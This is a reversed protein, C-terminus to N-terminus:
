LKSREEKTMLNRLKSDDGKTHKFVEIWKGPCLKRLEREFNLLAPGQVLGPIESGFEVIVHLPDPM